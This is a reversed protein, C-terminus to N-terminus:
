SKRGVLNLGPNPLRSIEIIGEGSLADTVEQETQPQDYAPSLMDFTDLIAWDYRQKSSLAPEDVYNAVPIAFAFVRNLLPVRFLVNTLPFLFRMSREIARLLMTKDIRKTLPRLLYKSYLFTLPKREYITVAIRGGAKIMRPLAAVSRLPEPTHQIVGISYCGDFAHQRFPMEYISGQVLHVNKREVLTSRAADTANSIDIGVVECDNNSAVDLFRGAGCGADLIWKGYLWDPTWGTESYFRKKSIETGNVSDIQQSRFRNWQYGFSAAYNDEPVFRPIGGKIPYSKGCQECELNGTEIEGSESTGKAVCTLKGLCTPCALLELLKTQM